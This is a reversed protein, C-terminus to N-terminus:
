ISIALEFSSMDCICEVYSLLVCMVGLKVYRHYIICVNCAITFAIITYDKNCIVIMLLNQKTQKQVVSNRFCISIQNKKKESNLLVRSYKIINLAINALNILKLNM